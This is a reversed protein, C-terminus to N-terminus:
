DKERKIDDVMSIEIPQLSNFYKLAKNTLPYPTLFTHKGTLIYWGSFLSKSRLINFVEDIDEKKCTKCLNYKHFM